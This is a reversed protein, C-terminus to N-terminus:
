VWLSAERALNLTGPHDLVPVLHLAHRLCAGHVAHLAPRAYMGTGCLKHQVACLALEHSVSFIAYPYLILHVPLVVSQIM